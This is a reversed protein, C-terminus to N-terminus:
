FIIARAHRRRKQIGVIPIWTKSQVVSCLGAESAARVIRVERSALGELNSTQSHLADSSKSEKSPSWGIGLICLGSTWDGTVNDAILAEVARAQDALPVDLFDIDSRHVEVSPITCEQTRVSGRVHSKRDTCLSGSPVATQEFRMVRRIRAEHKDIAVLNDPHRPLDEGGVRVVKAVGIHQGKPISIVRENGTARAEREVVLEGSLPHLASRGNGTQVEGGAAQQNTKVEIELPSVIRGVVVFDM